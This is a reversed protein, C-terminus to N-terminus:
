FAWNVQAGGSFGRRIGQWGTFHFDYSLPGGAPTFRYGLELMGSSGKLSPSPTSYGQFTATAKGNFEYEYALGTYFENSESVKHTYQFGLRIRHSNVSGFDYVEGSSLTATMGNQHSYFYRLYPTVTDDKVHIDKGLGLHAAYYTNSGDYSVDDAGITSRYDSTSRGGRLSGEYWLGQESEVRALVGLGFYSMSGSGHTGNDLYSDYDGRGYEVFPSFLTKKAAGGDQRAWGLGFSWGKTDVYSGSEARMANAGMGAWVQYRDMEANASAAAAAKKASSLSEGAVVDGAHNVFDALAARTEPFSKTTEEDMGAKTVTAILAKDDDAAKKIEFEYKMSSGHSGKLQNEIAADTTLAGTTQLLRIVEGVKMVKAGGDVKVGIGTGTLDADNNIKLMPNVPGVADNEIYFHVNQFGYIGGISSGGTRSHVILTNGVGNVNTGGIVSRTVQAGRLHVINRDTRGAASGSRGGCVDGTVNVPGIDVINESADGTFSNGGYIDEVSGGEVTVTNGNAKGNVCTTFGGALEDNITGAKLIVHNNRSDRRESEAAESGEGMTAGGYVNNFADVGDITIKNNLTSNGARSLGACVSTGTKIATAPTVDANKFQYVDYYIHNGGNRINKEINGTIDSKTNKGDTITISGANFVLSLSKGFAVKTLEGDAEINALSPITIGAGETLTLFAAGLDVATENYHFKIKAFNEINEATVNTKVNLTNGTIDAHNGGFIKGIQYGAAMAHEGDGLNVTNGTTKNVAADTFGGYVNHLKGGTITVTNKLAKGDGSTAGGYVAGAVEGGTVTVENEIADGSGYADVVGGTIDALVKGGNLTVKNGKVEGTTKGSYGGVIADVESDGKMTVTNGIVNGSGDTKGGFVSGEFKGGEIVVHNSEVSGTGGAGYGGAVEGTVKTTTKDGRLTVSNEKVTGTAGSSTLAGGFVSGYITGRKIEVDNKIASGKLAQTAGGYIKKLNTDPPPAEGITGGDVILHNEIASGQNFLAGGLVFGGFGDAKLTASNEIKLTNNKVDGTGLHFGGYLQGTTYTVGAKLILTNGEVTVTDDSSSGGWAPGSGDATIEKEAASVAGSLPPLITGLALAMSIALRKKQSMNKMKMM